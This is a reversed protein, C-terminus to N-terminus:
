KVSCTKGTAVIKCNGKTSVSFRKPEYRKETDTSSDGGGTLKAFIRSFFSDEAADDTEAHEATEAAPDTAVEEQAADAKGKLRDEAARAAALHRDRRINVEADALRKQEEVSLVPANSGVNDLPTDLMANLGDYDIAALIERVAADSARARALIKVEDRLSGNFERYPAEARAGLLGLNRSYAVGQIVAFGERGVMAAVNNDSIEIALGQMGRPTRTRSYSARLAVIDEGKQYVWTQADREARAAEAKRADLDLLAGAVTSEKLEATLAKERASPQPPLLDLLARDADTLARRTWGAPPEPLHISAPQAQRAAKEEAARTEDQAVNFRAPITQVYAVVSLGGPIQRAQTAYDLGAVATAAIVGFGLAFYNM